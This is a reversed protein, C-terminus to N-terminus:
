YQAADSNATFTVPIIVRTVIQPRFRWKQLGEIASTDLLREGTSQRVKVATVKGSAKDVEVAFVGTGELHLRSAEPVKTVRPASLALAKPKDDARTLAVGFFTLLLMVALRHKM